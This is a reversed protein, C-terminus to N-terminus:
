ISLKGYTHTGKDIRLGRLTYTSRTTQDQEERTLKRTSTHVVKGREGWLGAGVRARSLRRKASAFRTASAKTKKGAEQGWLKTKKCTKHNGRRNETDTVQRAQQRRQRIQRIM